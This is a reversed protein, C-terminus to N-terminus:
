PTLRRTSGSRWPFVTSRRTLDPVQLEMHHCQEEM